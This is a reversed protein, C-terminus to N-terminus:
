RRAVDLADTGLPDRDLGCCSHGVVVTNIVIPEHVSSVKALTQLLSM